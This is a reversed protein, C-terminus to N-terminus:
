KELLLRCVLHGRSQLESTHEESRSKPLTTAHETKAGTRSEQVDAAALADRAAPDPKPPEALVEYSVVKGVEEDSPVMGAQNVWGRGESKRWVKPKSNPGFRVRITTWPTDPLTVRQPEAAHREEEPVPTGYEDAGEVHPNFTEGQETDPAPEAYSASNIAAWMASIAHERWGFGYRADIAARLTAADVAVQGPGVVKAPTVEDRNYPNGRTDQWYSWSYDVTWQVPIGDDAYGFDSM